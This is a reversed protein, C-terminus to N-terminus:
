YSYDDYGSRSGRSGIYAAGLQGGLGLLSSVLQDRRQRKALMEAFQQERVQDAIDFSRQLGARRMELLADLAAQDGGLEANLATGRIDNIQNFTDRDFGTLQRQNELGIDKIAEAQSQDRATQSTFLGRANLDELIYPNMREFYSPVTGALTAALNDRYNQAAQEFEEAFGEIQGRQKRGLEQRRREEEKGQSGLRIEDDTAGQSPDVGSLETIRKQLSGQDLLNGYKEPTRYAELIGKTDESQGILAPNILSEALKKRRERESKLNSGFITGTTGDGKNVELKMLPM